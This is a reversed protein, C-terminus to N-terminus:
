EKRRTFIQVSYLQTLHAGAQIRMPLFGEKPEDAAIITGIPIGPPIQDSMLSTSIKMGRKIGREAPVYLLRLNGRGDGNIVGLDRTEDVAAAIMFSPSTILEVWSYNDGVRTVSGVLYGDSTVAAGESIGANTGKDVRIESWWEEAYRLTVRGSVFSERSEPVKVFVEQLAAALTHNEMELKAVREQLTVRELVWNSSYRVINRLEMLPKELFYLTSNVGDVLFHNLKPAALMTWLIFFGLLLSIVGHLWPKREKDWLAM